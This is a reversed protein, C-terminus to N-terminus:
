FSLYGTVRGTVQNFMIRVLMSAIVDKGDFTVYDKTPFIVHGRHGDQNIYTLDNALVLDCDNKKLLNYGVDILESEAVGDLLKYGVLFTEPQLNKIISILKPAKKMSIVLNEKDSSIKNAKEITKPSDLAIDLDKVESVTEKILEKTTIYEVVYDSIAMGHVFYDIKNESMVKEIAEKVQLVSDAIIVELRDNLTPKLSYSSCIYFVKANPKQGLVEAVVKVGMSGTATNTIRRVNDIPESTGGGTVVVNIRRNEM